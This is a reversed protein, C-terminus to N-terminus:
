KKFKMRKLIMPPFDEPSETDALPTDPDTAQHKKQYEKVPPIMPAMTPRVKPDAISPLLVWSVDQNAFSCKQHVCNSIAAFAPEREKPLYWRRGCTSCPLSVTGMTTESMPWISTQGEMQRYWWYIAMRRWLWSKMWQYCGSLNWILSIVAFPVLVPSACIVILGLVLYSECQKWIPSSTM